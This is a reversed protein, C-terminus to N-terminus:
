TLSSSYNWIKEEDTGLAARALDHAISNLTRPNYHVSAGPFPLLSSVIKSIYGSLASRDHSFKQIRHVLNQCDSVIIALPFRVAQCWSLARLLAEAEAFIPPLGSKSPSSLSAVVEGRSNTIVAGYGHKNSSPLLAADVNLQYMNPPVQPTSSSQSTASRPSICHQAERYEQLYCSVSNELCYDHDRNSYFIAKNRNNWISWLLGLFTVFQDKSLFDYGRLMFEKIDCNKNNSYFHFFSSHKWVKGARSCHLLAHTNSDPHSHCISCIPSPVSKRHFLNLNSPLIHNFAKWVFHKIKPPISSSWVSVWWSKYTAPNSPGPGSISSNALHYASNVTFCGSPHHNWILADPHSPDIPVSLISNCMGEDFYHQLKNLDWHRDPTIFFSVTQSPPLLGPKFILKDNSPLWSSESIKVSNGDGIKWTLGKLLLERGWLISRWCFSPSHGIAAHLFDNRKFYKAKLLQGVLSDPSTLLRWAQKALMAQNHHVINRFGLGGFFKSSCLNDWKKWHIKHNQGLSGWWFKSMLRSYHKCLSVPLRFCSM